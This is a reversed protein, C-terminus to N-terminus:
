KWGGPPELFGSANKVYGREAVTQRPFLGHWKGDACESCLMPKGSAKNIWSGSTVATNEVIGCKSCEFLPM